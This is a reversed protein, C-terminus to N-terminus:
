SSTRRCIRTHRRRTWVVSVFKCARGAEIARLDPEDQIVRWEGQRRTGVGFLVSRISGAREIGEHGRVAEARGNSPAVACPILRSARRVELVYM